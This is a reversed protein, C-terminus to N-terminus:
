SAGGPAILLTLLETGLSGLAVVALVTAAADLDPRAQLVNMAIAVGVIGPAILDFGLNRPWERMLAATVVWGAILKGGIRLVMYAAVLAAANTPLTLRAGAVVLLLVLLPHQLYRLDRVLAESVPTGLANWLVGGLFGTFVASVSLHAAGGGLLLLAGLAFVRQESDSTAQTVLLWAAAAMTLAILTSAGFISAAAGLTGERMWTVVLMSLVIPLVDGLSGTRAIAAGPDDGATHAATSSTAACLGLLLPLLWSTEETATSLGTVVLMGGAVVAISVSAFLSSAGLLRTERPRRVAVDLGVFVGLAALAVSVAPDLSALV